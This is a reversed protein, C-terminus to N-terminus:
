KRAIISQFLFPFPVKISYNTVGVRKLISSIENYSLDNFHRLVIVIRYDPKLSILANQISLNLEYSEFMKDPGELTSLMTKDVREFRKRQKIFNLTENVAIRYLWSFFKHKPDYKDLREYAKVFVSQTIDRADEYDNIMRYTLNLIMKQYREILEEFAKTEGELFMKIYKIDDIEAM